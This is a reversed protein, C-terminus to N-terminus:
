HHDSKPPPLLAKKARLCSEEDGKQCLTSLVYQAVVQDREHALGRLVMAVYYNPPLEQAQVQEWLAMWGKLRFLPDAFNGIGNQFAALTNPEFVEKIYDLDEVNVSVADPCPQSKLQELATRAQAYSIKITQIIKYNKYLAVESVHSRLPDSQTISFDKIKDNACEYQPTVTNVGTTSLWEKELRKLNKHSGKELSTFVDDITASKNAFDMFFQAWSEQMAQPGVTFFIERLAAARSYVGQKENLYFNEWTGVFPTAEKVGQYTMLTLLGADNITVFKGFWKSAVDKFIARAMDEPTRGPPVLVAQDYKKLPYPTKLYWPYYALAMQATTFWEKAPILEAMSQPVLLRVPTGAASKFESVKFPGAYLSFAKLSEDDSSVAWDKPANVVLELAADNSKELVPFVSDRGDSQLQSYIYTKGDKPDKWAHLGSGHTVYPHEFVVDVTNAGAKLAPGSLEVRGANTKVKAPESNIKASTIHGGTFILKLLSPAKSGLDFTVIEQGSYQDQDGLTLTLDYSKEAAHLSASVSLATIAILRRLINRPQM